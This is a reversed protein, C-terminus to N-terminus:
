RRGPAGGSQAEVYAGALESLAASAKELRSKTKADVRIAATKRVPKTAKKMIRVIVRFGDVTM